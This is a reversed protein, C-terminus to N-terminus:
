VIRGGARARRDPPGARLDRSAAMGAAGARLRRVASRRSM